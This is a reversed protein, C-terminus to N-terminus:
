LGPTPPAKRPWVNGVIWAGSGLVVLGGLGIVMGWAGSHRVVLYMAVMMTAVGLNYLGWQIWGAATLPAGNREFLWAFAIAWVRRAARCACSAFQRRIGGGNWHATRGGAHGPVM